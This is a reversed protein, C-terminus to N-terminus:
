AVVENRASRNLGAMGVISAGAMVICCAMIIIWWLSGMLSTMHLGGRVAALALHVMARFVTGFPSVLVLFITSGSLLALYVYVWSLRTAQLAQHHASIRAMIQAEMGPPSAHRGLLGYISSSLETWDNLAGQCHTCFSLHQRVEDRQAQPLADDLYASLVEQNMDCNM